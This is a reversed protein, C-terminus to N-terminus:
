ERGVEETSDLTAHAFANHATYTALNDGETLLHPAEDFFIGACAGPYLQGYRCCPVFVILSPIIVCDRSRVVACGYAPLSCFILWFACFAVTLLVFAGGCVCM